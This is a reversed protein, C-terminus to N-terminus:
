PAILTIQPTTTSTSGSLSGPPNLASYAAIRIYYTGPDLPILISTPATPGSTWPVPIETVDGDDPDFGSNASYYVM